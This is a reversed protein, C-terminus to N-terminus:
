PREPEHLSPGRHVIDDGPTARAQRTTDAPVARRGYGPRGGQDFEHPRRSYLHLEHGDPDDLVVMWGVTADIPPSHAIGLGDLRHVWALVDDRDRVAWNVPNWGRLAAAIEPAERLAVYTDPVGALHGAVGRVVGDDDPFELAVVYGFVREYWARTVALSTVPLKVAFVGALQQVQPAAM